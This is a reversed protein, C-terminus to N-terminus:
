NPLSNEGLWDLAQQRDAFIEFEIPRHLSAEGLAVYLRALIEHPLSPVLIATRGGARLHDFKASHANAKEQIDKDIWHLNQINEFSILINRTIDESFADVYEELTFPDYYELITIDKSEIRIVKIPM